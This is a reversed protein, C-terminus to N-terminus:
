PILYPGGTVDCWLPLTHGRGDKVEPRRRGGGSRVGAQGGGRPVRGEGRWGRGGAEWPQSPAGTPEGGLWGSVTEGGRGRFGEIRTPV